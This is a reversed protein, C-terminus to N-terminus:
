AALTEAVWDSIVECTLPVNDISCHEAGGDALTHIYLERKPSNVCEEIVRRANALPIQRDNEGHVVLIPCRIRDLIGVLSIKSSVDLIADM